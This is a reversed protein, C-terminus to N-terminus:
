PHDQAPKADGKAAPATAKAAPATAKAAAAEAGGNEGDVITVPAGPRLRLQGDTVVVDGARVGKEIVAWSDDSWAVTVPSSAATHDDKVVYVFTGQQSDQVAATPIVVADSKEGLTLTVQVSEGPWLKEDTNAFDAKLLITGTTPDVSNDIFSLVGDIAHEGTPQGAGPSVHVALEDGAVARLRPLVREPVAFRVRIPQVQNIVVLPQADLAKALNGVHVLLAGTRGSIPARLTCYALELRAARVAAEDGAVAAALAAAKAKADDFQQRTVYGKTVLKTYRDAAAQATAANAKDAALAQTAKALAVRFPRADIEFLRDGEHVIQGEEFDVRKIIGSVQARIAVTQYPEVSGIASLTIPMARVTARVVKVPAPAHGQPKGAGDNKCGAAAMMAVAALWLMPKTQFMM